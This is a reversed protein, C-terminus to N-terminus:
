QREDEWIVTYVPQGQWNPCQGDGQGTLGGSPACVYNCKEDYLEYFQDCCGSSSGYYTKGDVEMKSVQAPPNYVPEKQIDRIKAKVCAPVDKPLDLKECATGALLIVLLLLFFSSKQHM